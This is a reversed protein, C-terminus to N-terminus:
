DDTLSQIFAVIDAVENESLDNAPMKLSYGDLLDAAPDSIARTLYADDAVVTTGDALVVDSGALGVWGPGAAGQFDQGHCGACGNSRALQEGREASPDGAAGGPVSSVAGDGGDGSSGGCAVAVGALAITIMTGALLHRLRASM